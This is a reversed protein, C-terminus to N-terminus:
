STYLVNGNPILSYQKRRLLSLPTSSEIEMPNKKEQNLSHSDLELTAPPQTCCLGCWHLGHAGQAVQTGLGEFGQRHAGRAGRAKHHPCSASALSSSSGPSGAAAVRPAISGTTPQNPVTPTTFEGRVLWM